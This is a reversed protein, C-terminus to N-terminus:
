LPAVLFELHQAAASCKWEVGEREGDSEPLMVNLNPESASECALLGGAGFSIKRTSGELEARGKL